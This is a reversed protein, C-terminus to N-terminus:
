WPSQGSRSGWNGALAAVDPTWQDDKGDDTEGATHFHITSGPMQQGGTDSVGQLSLRYDAGPSLATSPIIFALRGREAAAVTVPMVAGYQDCLTINAATVSRVDALTSFRIKIFDAIPFGPSGDLPDSSM